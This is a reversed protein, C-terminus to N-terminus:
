CESSLSIPLGSPLQRSHIFISNNPDCVFVREELTVFRKKPDSGKLLYKCVEASTTAMKSNDAVSTASTSTFPPLMVAAPAGLATTGPVLPSAQFTPSSAISRSAVLNPSLTGLSSMQFWVNM